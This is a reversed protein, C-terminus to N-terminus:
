CPGRVETFLTQYTRAMSTMSFARAVHARGAESLRRALTPDRLLRIVAAALAAPDRSGILLGTRGDIILERTGGSDNAVVPVGAALAELVANPCGQSEGLVVAVDYDALREPADPTAGHVVVGRDLDDGVEALVREAYDRHRTEVPGLVHLEVGPVAARVLRWAAVIELLFKSPAAVTSWSAAARWRDEAPAPPVGNPSRGDAARPRPRPGLV